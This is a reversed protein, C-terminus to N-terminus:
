NTLFYYSNRIQGTNGVTVFFYGNWKPVFDCYFEDRRAPPCSIASGSEDTVGVRLPADGDGSVALEAYSGGFFPVKWTDTAGAAVSSLTRSAGGIRDSRGTAEIDEITGIMNEDEGALEKATTLMAAADVPASAVDPQEETSGPQSQKEREVDTMQVGAALKAATVVLLADQTRVGMAYLQQALNFQAVGGQEGTTTEERNLGSKDQALAATALAALAMAAFCVSHKLSMQWYEM